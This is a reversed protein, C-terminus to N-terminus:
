IPSEEDGSVEIDFSGVYYTTCGTLIWGIVQEQEHVMNPGCIFHRTVNRHLCACHAHCGMQDVVHSQSHTLVHSMHRCLLFDQEELMTPMAFSLKSVIPNALGLEDETTLPM